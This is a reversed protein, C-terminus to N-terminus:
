DRSRALLKFNRKFRVKNNEILKEASQVINKASRYNVDLYFIKADPFQKQFNLMISSDASRFGYISQDDDGVVCLNGYKEAMKYFIESQIINTDQFEDIIIYPFYDQWYELEIRDADFINNTLILMDDFDIKNNKRKFSEYASYMEFFNVQENNAKCKSVFSEPPLKANKVYSIESLIGKCFVDMDEYSVREKMLERFFRYQEWEKLINKADFGDHHRLVNFCLSHITCFVTGKSDYRKEFRSKMEEAANKTFTVVLIREPNIGQKIMYDTRALMTTTKGSGPCAIVIVRGNIQEIIRKQNETFNM